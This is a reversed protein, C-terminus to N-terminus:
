NIFYRHIRDYTDLNIYQEYHPNFVSAIQNLGVIETRFNHLLVISLIIKERKRINSTMRSKLRSFTGQLARMGWESAQRLSIYREHLPILYERAQDNLNKKLRKPMPGVFRDYLDGSRPFGQDVCLAYMGIKSIVLRIFQLAVASDHWSGPFNIAAYIIKGEPSFAFVNNCMTDHSYGCYAANQLIENDSCQVPVSVGDVFGIVNKVMPERSEVMRAFHGMRDEDPFKIESIQHRKLSRCVMRMVRNITVETTTPVTGFILCLHKTKMQSGLFLLYLGLEGNDDLSRPRGYRVVNRPPFVIEKLRGFAIRTFGTMELFSSEDGHIYLRNWPSLAPQLIASRTLKSRNRISNYYVVGACLVVLMLVDDLEEEEEEQLGYVLYPYM